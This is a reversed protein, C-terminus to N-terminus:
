RTQELKCELERRYQLKRQARFTKPHPAIKKGNQNVDTKRLKKPTKMGSHKIRPIKYRSSINQGAM